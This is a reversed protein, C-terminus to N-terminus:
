HKQTRIGCSTRRTRLSHILSPSSGAFPCHSETHALDGSQGCKPCTYARLVPCIVNGHIDKLKHTTYFERTEGNKRCFACTIGSSEKQYIDTDDDDVSARRRRMQCRASSVSGSVQSTNSKTIVPKLKSSPLVMTTARSPVVPVCSSHSVESSVIVDECAKTIPRCISHEQMSQEEM